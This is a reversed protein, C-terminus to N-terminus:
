MLTLHLYFVGDRVDCIPMVLSQRTIGFLSGFRHFKRDAVFVWTQNKKKCVNQNQINENWFYCENGYIIVNVYAMKFNVDNHRWFSM